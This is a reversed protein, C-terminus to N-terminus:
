QGMIKKWGASYFDHLERLYVRGDELPMDHIVIEFYAQMMGTILIHELRPDIDPVPRGLRALVAYYAHTAETEMDACTDILRAFETGEACQLILHFETRRECMYALMKELCRGSIRGMEEPQREEPLAFFEELTGRYWDLITQYAEGVLDRFMDEKGAYYGYLAGTTVGAKAAITRLSAQRFGKELFEETAAARIRAQTSSNKEM